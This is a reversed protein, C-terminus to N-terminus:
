KTTSLTAPPLRSCREKCLGLHLATRGQCCPSHKLLPPTVASPVKLISTSAVLTCATAQTCDAQVYSHIVVMQLRNDCYGVAVGGTNNMNTALCCFGKLLVHISALMPTDQQAHLSHTCHSSGHVCQLQGFWASHSFAYRLVPTNLPTTYM